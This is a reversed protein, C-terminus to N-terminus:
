MVLAFLLYGYCGWFYTSRFPYLWCIWKASDRWWLNCAWLKCANFCSVQIYGTLKALPSCILRCTISICPWHPYFDSCSATFYFYPNMLLLYDVNTNLDSMQLMVSGWNHAFSEVLWVFRTLRAQRLLTVPHKCSWRDILLSRNTCFINGM